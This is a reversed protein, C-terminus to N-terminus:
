RARSGIQKGQRQRELEERKRAEIEEKTLMSIGDRGRSLHQGEQINVGRARLDAHRHLVAIKEDLQQIAFVPTIGIIPGEYPKERKNDAGWIEIHSGMRARAMQEAFARGENERLKRESFYAGADSFTPVMREGCQMTVKTVEKGDKEVSEVHAVKGRLVRTQNKDQVVFRIRQKKQISQPNLRAENRERDGAARNTPMDPNTLRAENNATRVSQIEQRVQGISGIAMNKAAATSLTEGNKGVGAEVEVEVLGQGDARIHTQLKSIAAEAKEIEAMNIGPQSRDIGQERFLEDDFGKQTERNKQSKQNGQEEVVSKESEHEKVSISKQVGRVLAKMTEPEQAGISAKKDREDHKDREIGTKEDISDALVHAVRKRDHGHKELNKLIDDIDKEDLKGDKISILAKLMTACEKLKEREESTEWSNGSEKETKEALAKLIEMNEVIEMIKMDEM